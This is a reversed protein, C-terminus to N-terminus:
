VAANLENGLRFQFDQLSGAITCRDISREAERPSRPAREIPTAMIWNGLWKPAAQIGDDISERGGQLGEGERDGAPTRRVFSQSVSLLSLRRFPLLLPFVSDISVHCREMILNTKEM